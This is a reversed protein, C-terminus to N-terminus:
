KSYKILLEKAEAFTNIIISKSISTSINSFSLTQPIKVSTKDFSVAVFKILEEEYDKSKSMSNLAVM